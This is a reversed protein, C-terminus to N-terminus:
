VAASAVVREIAVGAVHVFGSHGRVVEEIALIAIVHQDAVGVVHQGADGASAIEQVATGAAVREGTIARRHKNASGSGVIQPAPGAIVDKNKPAPSLTFEMWSKVRQSSLISTRAIPYSM